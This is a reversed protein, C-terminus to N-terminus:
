LLASVYAVQVAILAEEYHHPLIVPMATSANPSRPSSACRSVVERQKGHYYFLVHVLSLLQHM